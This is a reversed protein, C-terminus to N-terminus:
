INDQSSWDSVSSLSLITLPHNSGFTQQQAQVCSKMLVLADAHQGQDKWIHALNHMSALTYPHEEGLVRKTTEMVHVQLLEAEKWRGQSHHTSALSHMSALTHPHEEGQVRKRTEMVQVQLLEAEKWWGQSKYTLALSHISSLTNPHEEGLVRKRTEMVHVQLLEAEKWQGQSQHTSALNHMSTLTDPHEEGLVRKTTETVQVQLLEAEKWWGQSKYTLALSHMSALTSPHEEGLVRKRTEMVQVQLLEAEKWRGQSQHTSALNHISTLTDPHEEGLVRKSTEMAQVQLLEADKWWGQSWYTLALISKSALTRSNDEGFCNEYSRLAKNAMQEGVKYRGQLWAYWSGNYMLSAWKEARAEDPKHGAAVEVHAFLQRCKMWNSYDGTPFVAAMREIFQNKFENQRGGAKLWKRTSLQVLGHMELVTGDDNAAVLCFDRLIDLDDEFHNDARDNNDDSKSGSDHLDGEPNVPKLLSVPIGQRDFYSMLSLLNAASSQISHIHEFSIQWTKLIANSAGGERRLDGAEHSLLWVRQSEDKRFNTLYKEISCRPSRKKIYAAAQSIALPVLDLVQVLDEATAANSLQGLKNKLLLLGDALAMPGVEIINDYSGTLKYALDRNRTTVVISGNPSQPLYDALPKGEHGDNAAYFVDGDDASDIIITWRGNRENSLWGYVLQPIDAKSQSRGSLKVADAITRFGEQIRAQTGAHIWFIWTDPTEAATRHAFEIALQSKSSGDAKARYTDSLCTGLAAWAWWLWAAPRNPVGSAFNTSFTAVTSSIAIAPSPSSPSRSRPLKQVSQIPLQCTEPLMSRACEGPPLHIETNMTGSNYGVQVGQNEPAFSILQQHTTM